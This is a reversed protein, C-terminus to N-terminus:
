KVIEVRRNQAWAGENSAPDAPKEEGYSIVELKNRDVGQATLYNRVANARREGLALNYERTGREDAHGELRVSAGTLKLVSAVIDLEERVDAKLNSQDFDFYFVNPMNDINAQQQDGEGPGGTVKESDMPTVTAAGQSSDPGVSSQSDSDSDTSACSALLMSALVVGLFNLKNIKEM